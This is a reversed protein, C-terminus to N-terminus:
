TEAGADGTGGVVELSITEFHPGQGADDSFQISIGPRLGLGLALSDSIRPWPGATPKGLGAPPESGHVQSSCDSIRQNLDHVKNKGGAFEKGESTQM